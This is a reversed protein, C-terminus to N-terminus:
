SSNHSVQNKSLYVYLDNWLIKNCILKRFFYMNWLTINIFYTVYLFQRRKELIDHLTRAVDICIKDNSLLFCLKDSMNLFDACINTASEFLSVWLDTYLECQIIVHLENEIKDTCQFCIRSEEPIYHSCKLNSAYLCPVFLQYGVGYLVYLPYRYTDTWIPCLLQWEM